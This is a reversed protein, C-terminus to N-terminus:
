EPPTEAIPETVISSPGKVTVTTTGSAAAIEERVVQRFDEITKIAQQEAVRMWYEVSQAGARSPGPDSSLKEILERHEFWLMRFALLLFVAGIFSLLTGGTDIRYDVLLQAIAQRLRYLLLVAFGIAMYRWSKKQLLKYSKWGYWMIGLYAALHLFAAVRILLMM